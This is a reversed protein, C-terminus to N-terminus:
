GNKLGCAVHTHYGSLLSLRVLRPRSVQGTSQSAPQSAQPLGRNVSPVPLVSTMARSAQSSQAIAASAAPQAASAPFDEPPLPQSEPGMAEAVEEEMECAENILDDFDM